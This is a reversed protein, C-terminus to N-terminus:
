PKINIVIGAGDISKRKEAEPEPSMLLDGNLQMSRSKNITEPSFINTEPAQAPASQKIKLGANEIDKYPISLDLPKQLESYESTSTEDVVNDKANVSTQNKKTKLPNMQLQSTKEVGVSESEVIAKTKEIIATNADVSKGFGISFVGSFTVFSLVFILHNKM